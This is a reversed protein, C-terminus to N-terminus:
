FGVVQKVGGGPKAAAEAALMALKASANAGNILATRRSVIAFDAPTLGEIQALGQPVADSFHARWLQIARTADLAEFRVRFLFRRQTAPDLTDVLNTTVVFPYPHREMGSLMENVMSVEWSRTAGQRDRLLSDAEDFLLLAGSDAADAFARAIKKETGGVYMDLLDSGRREMVEIGIAAALHRAYASKGTGSPGELLLSWRREPTAVLQEVLQTLDADARSLRPDFPTTTGPVIVAGFGKLAERLGKAVGYAVAGDGRILATARMAQGAVAPPVDLAALKDMADDSITVSKAKAHRSIVRRRVSLPPQTFGIAATMRRVVPGGLCGPCNVIWITPATSNEVLRNVWLKSTQARGDSPQMLDDAEDIVVLHSKSRRTLARMATLHAIRELRNPEGGFEDELGVFIASLGLRDAVMRAFETKGTGPEGHLLLDVPVRRKASAGILKSAMERADGLHAYDDWGLTSPPSKKLLSAALRDPDTTRQQGVRKLFDSAALDDEEREILGCAILVRNPELRAIVDGPRVGLIAATMFATGNRGRATGLKDLLAEWQPYLAGRVNLAAIARELPDLGILRGLWDIRKDLASHRPRPTAARLDALQQHLLQERQKLNTDNYEGIDIRGFVSRVKCALSVTGDIFPNGYPRGHAAACNLLAHVLLVAEGRPLPDGIAEDNRWWPSTPRAHKM